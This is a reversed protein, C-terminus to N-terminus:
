DEREPFIKSLAVGMVKGPARYLTLVFLIRIPSNNQGAEPHVAVTREEPAGQAQRAIAGELLQLGMYFYADSKAVESNIYGRM